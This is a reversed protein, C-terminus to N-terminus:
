PRVKPGEDITFSIIVVNSSDDKEYTPKVTASPHGHAALLGAIVTAAPTLKEPDFWGDVSLTIKESKYANHIDAETISRIGRYEIRRIIPRERVVFIVIKGNPRDSSDEVRVRVESFYGTDRLAQADRQVAESNYTDGPHCLIHTRVTSDAVRRYNEIDIREISFQTSNPQQSKLPEPLFLSLCVAAVLLGVISAANRRRSIELTVTAGKPGPQSLKDKPIGDALM